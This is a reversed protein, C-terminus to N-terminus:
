RSLLRDFTCCLLQASPMRSHALPLVLMAARQSSWRHGHHASLSDLVYERDSRVRRRPPFFPLALPALSFYWVFYQATVVQECLMPSTSVRVSLSHM